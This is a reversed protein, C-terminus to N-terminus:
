KWIGAVACASQLIHSGSTLLHIDAASAHAAM